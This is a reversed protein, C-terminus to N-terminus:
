RCRSPNVRMTPPLADADADAGNARGIAGSTDIADASGSATAATPGSSISAVPVM